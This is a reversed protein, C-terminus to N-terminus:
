EYSRTRGDTEPFTIGLSKMKRFLTTKHIGLSRATQLRNYNNERMAERILQAEFANVA